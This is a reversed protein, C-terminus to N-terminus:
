RVQNPAGYQLMSDAKLLELANAIARNNAEGGGMTADQFRKAFKERTYEESKPLEKIGTEIVGKIVHDVWRLRQAEEAFEIWNGHSSNKYMQKRFEELSIGMKNAVRGTFRRWWKEMLEVIQKQDTLNSWAANPLVPEHHLIRANPLAFSQDALATIIAAMSAAITKVVVYVPAQSGRMADLIKAGAAMDGGYNANIVIFIPYERNKNNFFQIRDAVYQANITGVIGDFPIVRDSVVLTGDRQLPDKLYAAEQSLYQASEKDAKAQEVQARSIRSKGEVKQCELRTEQELKDAQARSLETEQTLALIHEKHEISKELCQKGFRLRLVEQQANLLAIEERLAQVDPSPSDLGALIQDVNLMGGQWQPANGVEGQGQFRMDGSEADTATFAKSDHSFRKNYALSRLNRADQRIKKKQKAAKDAQQQEKKRRAAEKKKRKELTKKAKATAKKLKKAEAKRQKERKAASRKEQKDAKVDAAAPATAALMLWMTLLFTYRIKM